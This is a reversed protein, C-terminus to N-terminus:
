FSEQRITEIINQKKIKRVSYHMIAAILAAVSVICIIIAQWPIIWGLSVSAEEFLKSVGYSILLGIPLGILLARTTYMISELRIMHNFEKSTMGVSKLVAFEKARLAVNTTITNFINTVGILTVVAVFGYILIEFMLIINRVTQMEKEIDSHDVYTIIHGFEDTYKNLNDKNDFFKDLEEGKGADAIYMITTYLYDKTNVVAPHRESIFLVGGEDYTRASWGLPSAETIASIKLTQKDSTYIKVNPNIDTQNENETEEEVGLDTTVNFDYREAQFTVEDGEKYNTSRVYVHNGSKDQTAYHDQLIVLNDFDSLFPNIGRAYRVFEGHSMVVIQPQPAIVTEDKKISYSLNYNYRELKFRDAVEQYLEVPAQGVLYNAGHDDFVLNIIKHGYGMFASIGIFVTVSLVISVVTTRYKSRSRKLNKSALVGGIGWIKMTLKSTRVKRAKIKVDQTNRLAAIPSVRSAVIAPSIASLFIIFLGVLIIVLFVPLPIYFLMTMRLLDGMLHNIIAVVAFTAGCGLLIGLPIAVVSILLGEGLVMRRIQRPRAGISALMGFQRIRETISINFSNRIVFAAIIAMIGVGFVSVSWVVIRTTEPVNGDLYAITDNKRTDISEYGADKLQNNLFKEAVEAKLPNKYKLFVNYHHENDRILANADTIPTYSSLPYGFAVFCDKYGYSTDICGLEDSYWVVNFSNNEEFVSVVNGPVGKYMIHYDGYENVADTRETWILSTALGITTLILAVSLAVGAITMFTRARNRKLNILNLNTLVKM